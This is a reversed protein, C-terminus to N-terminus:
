KVVVKKGGVIYLGKAPTGKVTKGDLTYVSNDQRQAVSESIGTATEDVVIDAESRPAMEYTIDGKNGRQFPIVIGTLSSLIMGEELEYDARFTDYVQIKDEGAVAYWNNGEKAIVVNEVQVLKLTNADAGVEAVGLVNAKPEDGATVTVETYDAGATIQPIGNYKTYTGKVVGNLRDGVVVDLNSSYLNLAGSADEVVTYKNGVALVVANKLTLELPTNLDCAKAFAINQAKVVTYIIYKQTVVDSAKGNADYAIAKVTTTQELVIPETYETSEATPESEDLTYYITAGETECSLEVTQPENYTGGAVSFVPAAVGIEEGPEDGPEDGPEGAAVGSIVVKSIQTTGNATAATSNITLRYSFGVQGETFTVTVDGAAFDDTIDKTAVVTEGDLIDFTVEDINSTKDVTVTYTDAKFTTAPSTLIAKHDNNKRGCRVFEWGNNNNNFGDLTWVAGDVTATWLTTYSGVKSDNYDPFTLTISETQAFLNGCVMTLLALVSARLSRKM